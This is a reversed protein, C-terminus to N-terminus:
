EYALADRVTMRAARLAPITAAVAAAVVVLALWLFPVVFPFSYVLPTGIFLNGVERALVRSLPLALPTAVLWGLLSIVLGEAVVLRMIAGNSAGVARLVGVERARELVNVSLTGMLGLGAVAAILIAMAMLFSSIVDFNSADIAQVAETTQVDGVRYGAAELRSSVVHALREEADAGHETTVVALTRARGQERTAAAVTETDAYITPESLIAKAVGAVRWVVRRGKVSLVLPSGVHLDHETRLVDTNVVVGNASGHLLIPQVLTSDRPLGVLALTQSESRDRRVRYAAGGAWAEAHAVGPGAAARELARVPYARDLAVEVDFRRYKGEADLTRALSSRVSLLAMFVAGGVVLGALTLALRRRGRLANRLSLRVAAPLTVREVFGGSAAPTGLRDRSMADRVTTRSAALVPGLAALAPLVLGVAIEIALVSPPISFSPTDVDILKTTVDVIVLAGLAGLPIALALALLGFVTSTALYMAAARRASAGVAKMIGIQRVHQALLASVVNVVLLASLALGVVALVSLLMIMSQVADDAWFKGPKPVSEVYVARGTREVAGRVRTAIREVQTRTLGPRTTVDLENLGGRDGLAHLTAFSVYGYRLGFTSTSPSSLDHVSGAVRVRRRAGDPLELLVSGGVVANMHALSDREVLLAGFPPPWAGRQQQVRNITMRRYDPVAFLRLEDWTGDGTSVRADVVRRAEARVVGPVSRVFAPLSADFDDTRFSASAFAGERASADLTRRMLERSGLVMGLATVGVAIALAVLTTRTLDARLDGVVKRTAASV